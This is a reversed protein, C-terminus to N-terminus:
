KGSMSIDIDAKSEFYKVVPTMCAEKEILTLPTDPEIIETNTNM